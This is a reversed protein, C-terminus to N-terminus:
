DILVECSVANQKKLKIKRAITQVVSDELDVAVYYRESTATSHSLTKSFQEIEERSPNSLRQETTQSIRSIRTSLIKGSLTKYNGLIHTVNSLSMQHDANNTSCKAFVMSSPDESDTLRPRLLKIYIELAKFELESFVVPAPIGETNTKHQLVYIFFTEQEIVHSKAMQFEKLTMRILEATRRPIRTAAAAILSNRGAICENITYNTISNSDHDKIIKDVDAQINNEIEELENNDLVKQKKKQIKLPKEKKNQSILGLRYDEIISDIENLKATRYLITECDERGTIEPSSPNRCIFNVFVKYYTLYKCKTDSVLDDRATFLVLRDNTIKGDLLSNLDLTTERTDFHNLIIDAAARAIKECNKNKKTKNQYESFCDKWKKLTSPYQRLDKYRKKNYENQLQLKKEKLVNMEAENCNKIEKGVEIIKEMLEKLELNTKKQELVNVAGSAEVEEIESETMKEVSNEKVKVYCKPIVPCDTVLQKYNPLNKSIKHKDTIHSPMNKFLRKCLLCEKYNGKRKVLNTCKYKNPKSTSILIKNESHANKSLLNSVQVAYKVKEESLESHKSELHRKAKMIHNGCSLIPCIKLSKNTSFFAKTVHEASTETGLHFDMKLAAPMNTTFNQFEKNISTIYTEHIESIKNLYTQKLQEGSHRKEYTYRLDIESLHCDEEINFEFIKFKDPIEEPLDLKITIPDM